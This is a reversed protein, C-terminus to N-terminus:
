DMALKPFEGRFWQGADVQGMMTGLKALLERRKDLNSSMDTDSQCLARLEEKTEEIDQDRDKKKGNAKTGRCYFRYVKSPGVHKMAGEALSDLFEKDSDGKESLELHKKAIFDSDSVQGFRRALSNTTGRYEGSYNLNIATYLFEVQGFLISSMVNNYHNDAVFDSEMRKAITALVPRLASSHIGFVESTVDLLESLDKCFQNTHQDYYENVVKNVLQDELGIISHARCVDYIWRVRENNSPLLKLAAMALDVGNENM